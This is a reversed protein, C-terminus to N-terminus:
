VEASSVTVALAYDAITIENGAAYKQNKMIEDFVSFADDLKVLKENDEKDYM